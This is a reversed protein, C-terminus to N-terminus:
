RHADDYSWWEFQDSCGQDIPDSDIVRNSVRMRRAKPDTVQIWPSFDFSESGTPEGAFTTPLCRTVVRHEDITEGHLPRVAEWSANVPEGDFPEFGTLLVCPM